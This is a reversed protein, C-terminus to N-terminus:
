AEALPPSGRARAVIVLGAVLVAWGLWAHLSVSLPFPGGAVLPGGRDPDARVLDFALQIVAYGLLSVGTLLGPRSLLRPRVWLIFCFFGLMVFFEFLQVPMVPLSRPSADGLLHEEVQVMWVRTGRPFTVGWGARLGYCCGTFFCGLKAVAFGLPAGTFLVDFGRRPDFQQSRYFIWSAAFDRFAFFNGSVKAFSSPASLMGKSASLSAPLNM